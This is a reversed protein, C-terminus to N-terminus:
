PTFFISSRNYLVIFIFLRSCFCRFFETFNVKEIKSTWKWRTKVTLMKAVQCKVVHQQCDSSDRSTKKVKQYGEWSFCRTTLANRAPRRGFFSEFSPTKCSLPIFLDFFCQVPTLDSCKKSHFCTYFVRNPIWEATEPVGADPSRGLLPTLLRQDSAGKGCAM